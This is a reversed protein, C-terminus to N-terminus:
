GPGAGPEPAAHQFLSVLLGYRSEGEGAEEAGNVLELLTATLRDAQDATLRLHRLALLPDGPAAAFAGAVANLMAAAPGAEATAIELRRATRRYYQETGGRVRRTEVVEVMGADRLVGLHHAINGKRSDLAVALQSITAPHQGLAFLLRQRLPHALAKFQAPDSVVLAPEPPPPHPPDTM